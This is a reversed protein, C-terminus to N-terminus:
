VLKMFEEPEMDIQKIIKRLLKRDVTEAPHYPVVTTRGDPHQLFIHSGKQRVMKFGVRALVKLIKRAPLPRIAM